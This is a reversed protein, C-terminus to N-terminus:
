AAKLQRKWTTVAERQYKRLAECAEESALPDSVLRWGVRAVDQADDIDAHFDSPLWDIAASVVCPVGEAVADATSLNFTETASVQIFLDMHSVLRRFDGWDTWPDEVLKAWPLGTFMNRISHLSGAGHEERHISLHFELDRGRSQALLLAGAAAVSHMKLHRMSGFSAVRITRHSGNHHHPRNAPRELHYLNPLLVCDQNYVGQVFHRFRPSNGAVHLNLESEQLSLSDRLIKIAGPEVQLFGIQSHSRVFFHIDPFSQVIRTLDEKGIWLADIVIDTYPRQAIAKLVDDVNWVSVPYASVGNERLVKATHYANIGLGVHSYMDHGYALFNRYVLGVVINKSSM